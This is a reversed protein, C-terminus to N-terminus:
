VHRNAHSRGSGSKQANMASSKAFSDSNSL